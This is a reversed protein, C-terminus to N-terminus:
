KKCKDCMVCNCFIKKSKIKKYIMSISAMVIVFVMIMLLVYVVGKTFLSYALYSMGYALALQIGVGLLTFKTGVEKILVGFNSM